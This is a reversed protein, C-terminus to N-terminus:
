SYHVKGTPLNSEKTKTRKKFNKKVYMLMQEIKNSQNEKESAGIVQINSKKAEGCKEQTGERRDKRRNKGEREREEKRGKSGKM